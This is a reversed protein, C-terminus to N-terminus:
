IKKVTLEQKRTVKRLQKALFLLCGGYCFLRGTSAEPVPQIQTIQLNSLDANLGEDLVFNFSMSTTSSAAVATFNYNVPPFVYGGNTMYGDEFARNLSIEDTGFWVDGAGGFDGLSSDQLTFSINYTTGTATDLDGILNLQNLAPFNAFNGVFTASNSSYIDILGTIPVSEDTWSYLDVLTGQAQAM